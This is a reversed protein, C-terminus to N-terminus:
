FAERCYVLLLNIFRKPILKRCARKNAVGDLRDKSELVAKCILILLQPILPPPVAVHFLEPASSLSVISAIFDTYFFASQLM